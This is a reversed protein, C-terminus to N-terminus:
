GLINKKPFVLYKDYIQTSSYMDVPDIFMMSNQDFTTPQGNYSNVWTIPAGVNNIWPVLAGFQNIWEDITSTNGNDFTTYLAPHPNWQQTEANWNKTLLRDLEYRDVEFDILNLHEGFQTNIYYAIRDGYGPKAYAIVWAPTFGLVRRNKQKSTMWLPLVNSLQGVTDIVQDRMDILSNPYVTTVEKNDVTIPYPLTVQKSVSEGADNILNDIIPSYVVEYIVVGNADVAQAVRISGLVLEKWYHNEYLSSVYQDYTDPNLGYAHHYVVNTSKGFNPDDPRYLLDQQFIDTNQLLGNILERDDPPPMCQVYLNNYPKNYKRNVTISFEKYVNVLGDVSYANVIFTHVLDFTTETAPSPAGTANNVADFTTTGGDVTFTDFSVYGAIHGSPLLQLGQPLSNYAGSKLRYLLPIGAVNIASVYFTSVGGNDITGINSLTLWTIDTSVPGVITLTYDYLKSYSLPDNAMYARVSFNYTNETIGLPPITGYLWGTIPDLTLGPLPAAGSPYILEYRVDGGALNIGVFQIAYFNDNRITGINGPAPSIIVPSITSTVDATIDTNDAHIITNDATMAQRSYVLINFSRVTSTVGDSLELTFNYEKFVLINGTLPDYKPLLDILGTILGTPSISLGPPLSGSKLSVVLTDITNLDTYNIQLDTIQTADFLTAIRGPPTLFEPVNQGTVTITFTRDSIRDVVETGSVIKTTYVRASFKSTVDLTVPLPVGQVGVVAKPIGTLLGDVACQMGPPLNGAIVKFYVPNIFDFSQDTSSAIAPQDLTLTTTGIATVKAGTPFGTGIIEAGIKINTVSSVNSVINSGNTVDGTFSADDPDYALIPTQFFQGEPITGLSGAPTIWLPQSM